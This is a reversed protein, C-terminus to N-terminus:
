DLKRLLDLMEAPIDEEVARQYVSRLVKAVDGSERAAAPPTAAAKRVKRPKVDDERDERGDTEPADAKPAAAGQDALDGRETMEPRMKSSVLILGEATDAGGMPAHGGGSVIM